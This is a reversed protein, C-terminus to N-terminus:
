LKFIVTKLAPDEIEYVSFNEGKHFDADDPDGSYYFETKGRVILDEEEDLEEFNLNGRGSYTTQGGYSGACNFELELKQVGNPFVVTINTKKDFVADSTNLVNPDDGFFLDPIRSTDKSTVSIFAQETEGNDDELLINWHKIKM